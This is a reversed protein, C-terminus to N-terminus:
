LTTMTQTKAWAMHLLEHVPVGYDLGEDVLALLSVFYTHGELFTTLGAAVVHRLCVDEEADGVREVVAKLGLLCSHAEAVESRGVSRRLVLCHFVAIVLCKPAEDPEKVMLQPCVTGDDM